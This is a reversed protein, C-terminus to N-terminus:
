VYDVAKVDAGRVTYTFQPNHILNHRMDWVATLAGDDGVTVAWVTARLTMGGSTKVTMVRAMKSIQATLLEAVADREAADVFFAYGGIDKGSATSFFVSPLGHLTNGREFQFGEGMFGFQRRRRMVDAIIDSAKATHAATDRDATIAALEANMVAIEAEIEERTFDSLNLIFEDAFGHDAFFIADNRLKHARQAAVAEAIEDDSKKVGNNDLAQTLYFEFDTEYSWGRWCLSGSADRIEVQTSGYQDYHYSLKRDAKLTYSNVLLTIKDNTM